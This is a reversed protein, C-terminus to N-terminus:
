REEKLWALHRALPAPLGGPVASLQLSQPVITAGPRLLRTRADIISGLIREELGFAGITETLLLDAPEPLQVNTSRERIVEIRDGFRLHRSLFTPIAASPQQEVAFVRRAGAECAFFALIGSGSGLDLVVSEPTVYRRIAQRYANIRVEDALLDRHVDLM